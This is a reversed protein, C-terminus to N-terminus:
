QLSFINYKSLDLLCASTSSDAGAKYAKLFSAHVDDDSGGDGDCDSSVFDQTLQVDLTTAICQPASYCICHVHWSLKMMLHQIASGFSDSRALQADNTCEVLM